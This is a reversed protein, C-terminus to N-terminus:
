FSDAELVDKYKLQVTITRGSIQKESLEIKLTKNEPFTLKKVVFINRYTRKFSGLPYLQWIPKIEISQVNTAKTIKKDEIKFRIEDIEYQINTNNLYTLDFFVLDGITYIQNLTAKIGYEQNARIHHQPRSKLIHLAHLKLEPTTLSNEGISLPRTHQPLINVQSVVDSQFVHIIRYQAIFSEGIITIIANENIEILNNGSDPSIKLRLVNAIPLDGIIGHTSIDVYRIPEPSIFHLSFDRHLYVTPLDTIQLNSNVPQASIKIGSVLIIFSILLIKM